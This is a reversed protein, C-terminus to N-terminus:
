RKSIKVLRNDSYNDGASAVIESNMCVGHVDFAINSM